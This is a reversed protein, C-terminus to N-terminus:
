GVLMCVGVAVCPGLTTAIVSLASLTLPRDIAVGAAGVVGDVVGDIEDEDALMITPLM